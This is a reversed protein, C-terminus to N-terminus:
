SAKWAHYAEQRSDFMELIEACDPPIGIGADCCFLAVMGDEPQGQRVYFEEGAKWENRRYRQPIALQIVETLRVKAYM